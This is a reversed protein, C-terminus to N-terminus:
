YIDEGVYCLMFVSCLENSCFNCLPCLIWSAHGRGGRRCWEGSVVVVSVLALSM